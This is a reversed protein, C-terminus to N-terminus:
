RLWSQSPHDEGGMPSPPHQEQELVASGLTLCGSGQGQRPSFAVSFQQPPYHRIFFVPNSRPSVPPNLSPPAEPSGWGSSTPSLLQQASVSGAISAPHPWALPGPPQLM